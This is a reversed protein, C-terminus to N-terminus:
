LGGREVVREDPDTRYEAFQGLPGGLPIPRVFM